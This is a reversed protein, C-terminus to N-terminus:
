RMYIKFNKYHRHMNRWIRLRRVFGRDPGYILPNVVKGEKILASMEEKYEMHDVYRFAVKQPVVMWLNKKSADMYEM